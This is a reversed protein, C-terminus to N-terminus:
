NGLFRFRGVVTSADGENALETSAATYVVLKPAAPDAVDAVVRGLAGAATGESIVEYVKAVTRLGIASPTVTEGGTPYSGDFTITAEVWRYQDEVGQKSDEITLAM